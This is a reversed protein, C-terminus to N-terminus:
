FALFPGCAPPLLPPYLPRAWYQGTRSPNVTNSPSPPSSLELPPQEQEADLEAGHM